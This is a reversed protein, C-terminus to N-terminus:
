AAASDRAPSPLPRSASLAQDGGEPMAAAHATMTDNAAQLGVYTTETATMHADAASKSADALAKVTNAADLKSASQAKEAQAGKLNAAAAFDQAQALLAISTPDPQSQAQAAQQLQLAEEDTPKFLGLKLGRQRNWAKYDAMGEGDMNEIMTITAAQVGEQDGGESCLQAIGYLAKVTKDRRTATAETVDAIVHFDGQSLDNRIQYRGNEDTYPESLIAMSQEGDEDMQPVERGPEFYVDDAMSKYVEGCRQMSQKFNDMYSGDREDIRTQAIDMAEASVNSKVQAAQDTGGTLQEIDNSTLQLLTATVPGLQPPELKGIPGAPVPNGEGDLLDNIVGFPARKLNMDAWAQERGAIQSATFIPVERPALANTETLKSVNTNYIRQPDKAQRVHGQVREVNEIYVRQGYFPIVPICTGAIYKKPKLMDRGSMVYKAIRRRKRQKVPQEIWGQAVMDEVDGDEIDSAWYADIEDTATNKFTRRAETSIEVRYYWAVVIVTPQYWEYVPKTLGDPWSCEADKFEAKFADPSFPLLVVAWEADSKDYLKSNPDFFVRQDADVITDFRIRQADSDPDYEDELENALLWAGMGGSSGDIFANDFAQTGKCRYVDARFLGDLLDATGSATGKTERFNVTVRNQRYDDQIRKLGIATKNVEVRIMNESMDSWGAEEWQAGAIFAFRRDQLCLARELQLSSVADHFRALAETHIETDDSM